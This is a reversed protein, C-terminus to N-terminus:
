RIPQGRMAADMIKKFEESSMNAFDRDPAPTGADVEPALGNDALVKNRIQTEIKEYRAIQDAAFKAIESPTNGTLDEPSLGIEALKPFRQATFMRAMDLVVSNADGAPPAPKGVEADKDAAAALLANLRAEAKNARATEKDRASQLDSIRKDSSKPDKPKASLDGEPASDSSDLDDKEEEDDFLNDSPNPM